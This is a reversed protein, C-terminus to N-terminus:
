RCIADPIFNDFSMDSEQWITLFEAHTNFRVLLSRMRILDTLSRYYDRDLFGLLM